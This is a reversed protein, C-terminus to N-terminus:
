QAKTRFTNNPGWVSINGAADTVIVTYYYTTSPQLNPVMISHSTSMSNSSNVVTGGIASFGNGNIDGENFMVPNTSYVVRAMSNENTTFTFTASTNTQSEFVNSFLPAMNDVM